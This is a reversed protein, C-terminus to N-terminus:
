IQGTIFRNVGLTDFIFSGVWFVFISSKLNLIAIKQVLGSLRKSDLAGLKNELM